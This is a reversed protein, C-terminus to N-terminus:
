SLIKIRKLSAIDIADQRGMEVVDGVERPKGNVWIPHLIEVKVPTQDPKYPKQLYAM